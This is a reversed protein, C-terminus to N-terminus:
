RGGHETDCLPFREVEELDARNSDFVFIPSEINGIDATNARTGVAEEEAVVIAEDVDDAWGPLHNAAKAGVLCVSDGM